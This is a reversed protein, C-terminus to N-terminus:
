LWPLKQILCIQWSLQCAFSITKNVVNRESAVPLWPTFPYFIAMRFKLWSFLHFDFHLARDFYLYSCQIFNQQRFRRQARLSKIPLKSQFKLRPIKMSLNLRGLRSKYQMKWSTKIYLNQADKHWAVYPWTDESIDCLSFNINLWNYFTITQLEISTFITFYSSIKM